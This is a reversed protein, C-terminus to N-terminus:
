ASTLYQCDTSTTLLDIFDNETIKTHLGLKFTCSNSYFLDYHNLPHKHEERRSKFETYRKKDYDYRIYGDEMLLLERIFIWISGNYNEEYSCIPEVFDLSCNADFEDCTIFEVVKSILRNDIDEIFKSYISFKREAEERIFFPFVISFYKEHCFFFLRSMKDIRLVMKGCINKQNIAPNLIIYKTAEMLVDIIDIKSRIPKFLKNLSHEDLHFIYNKM